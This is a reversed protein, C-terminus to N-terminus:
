RDTVKKKISGGHLYINGILFLSYEPHVSGQGPSEVVSVGISPLESLNPSSRPFPIATWWRNPFPCVSRDVPCLWRSQWPAPISVPFKRGMFRNSMLKCLFGTPTYPWARSSLIIPLVARLLIALVSWAAKHDPSVRSASPALVPRHLKDSSTLLLGHDALAAPIVCYFWWDHRWAVRLFFAPVKPLYSLSALSVTFM